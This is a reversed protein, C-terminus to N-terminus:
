SKERKGFNAFLEPIPQKNGSSETERMRAFSCKEAIQKIVVPASDAKLFEAVRRVAEVPNQKIEEFYLNLIMHPHEKIYKEFDKLYRFISVFMYVGNEGTLYPLFESRSFQNTHCQTVLSFILSNSTIIFSLAIDKPHRMVHVIKIKKKLVDVPFCSPYVPTNYVRTM